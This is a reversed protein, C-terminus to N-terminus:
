TLAHLNRAALKAPHSAHLVFSRFVELRELSVTPATKPLVRCVTKVRTRPGIAVRTTHLFLWLLLGWNVSVALYAKM